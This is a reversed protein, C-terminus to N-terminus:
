ITVPVGDFGIFTTEGWPALRLRAAEQKKRRLLRVAADQGLMLGRVLDYRDHVGMAVRGFGKNWALKDLEGHTTLTNSNAAILSLGDPSAQIPGRTTSLSGDPLKISVPFPLEPWPVNKRFAKAVTIEAGATAAHGSPFRPHPPAGEAVLVPLRGGWRALLPAGREMWLSHLREPYKLLQEPRARRREPQPQWKVAWCDRFAEDSAEALLCQVHVPGGYDIFGNEAPLDPFLTSRAIKLNDLMQLACLGMFYPPDAHVASALARPSNLYVSAGYTQLEIPNGALMADRTQETTAYEGTRLKYRQEIKVGGLEIDLLLLQSIYPEPNDEQDRQRFLAAPRTPGGLYQELGELPNGNEQTYKRIERWGLDRVSLLYAIEIHSAATEPSDDDPCTEYGAPPAIAVGIQPSVLKMRGTRLDRLAAQRRDPPLLLAATLAAADHSKNFPLNTM